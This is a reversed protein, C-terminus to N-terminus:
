RGLYEDVTIIKLKGYTADKNDREWQYPLKAFTTKAPKRFWSKIVKGRPTVMVWKAGREIASPLKKGKATARPTAGLRVAM